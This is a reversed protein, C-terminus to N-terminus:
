PLDLAYTVTFNTIIKQFLKSNRRVIIQKLQCIGGIIKVNDFPTLLRVNLCICHKDDSLLQGYQGVDVFSVHIVAQFTIKFIFNSLEHICKQQFVLIFFYYAMLLFAKGEPMDTKPM